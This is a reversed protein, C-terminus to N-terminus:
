ALDNCIAIDNPINKIIDNYAQYMPHIKKISIENLEKIEQQLKSFRKQDTVFLVDIDNPNPKELVSGFLVILEANKIKRFEEVWRKVQPIAHLPERLLILAVYRLAYSNETNIRYIIAKGVKKSELISEKELRKLIKLAGMATIGVVKALNNANYYIEPSKVLKLVIDMEAKTIEKM